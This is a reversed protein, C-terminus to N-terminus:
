GGAGDADGFGVTEQGVEVIGYRLDGAREYFTSSPPRSSGFRRSSTAGLLASNHCDVEDLTLVAYSLASPGSHTLL